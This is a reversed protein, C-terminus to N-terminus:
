SVRVSGATQTKSGAKWILPLSIAILIGILPAIFFEYHNSLWACTSAITYFIINVWNFAPLSTSEDMGNRHWRALYDGIIVGGLPPIFIGLLTLFGVLQNSVGFVALLTGIISGGIVFPIKTKASFIEAGAVGFAYATDANSKWLNGFMLLLGLLIMGMNYLILVFDGEGTTVAGIAGFILMALNGFTFGVICAIVAHSEKRAFRTWNPAQTGASVFTGVVTTVALGFTMMSTPEADMLGSLGGVESLCEYAVWVALALILPTSIVSVWYMGHYGFCATACMLASTILMTSIVAVRSEWGFAEATLEGVTGIIVGYWGVQTGGLVISAVKSGKNGMVYRAMVVTTLGTRAGIWGLTTVYAGLILSGLGFITLLPLFQFATGVQAGALMTPTFVTFGLLVFVLSALSKRAYKPVPSVPYDSDEVAQPIANTDSLVQPRTTTM